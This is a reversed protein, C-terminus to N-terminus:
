HNDNHERKKLLFDDQDSSNYINDNMGSGEDYIVQTWTKFISDYSVKNGLPYGSLYQYPIFTIRYYIEGKVEFFSMFFLKAHREPTEVNPYPAAIYARNKKPYIKKKGNDAYIFKLDSIGVEWSRVSYVGEFVKVKSSLATYRAQIEQKFASYRLVTDIDDVNSAKISGFGNRGKAGLGGFAVLASFAPKIHKEIIEYNKCSVVVEFRSGEEIYYHDEVGYALYKIDHAKRGISALFTTNSYIVDVERVRLLVKSRQETNGFIEGEREKLEELELHGNLARWWFRLAGKISPARLEPTKGDAGAMFMPTITECEFTIRHM